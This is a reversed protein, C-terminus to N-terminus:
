RSVAKRISARLYDRATPNQRCEALFNTLAERIFWSVSGHQPFMRNFEDSDARSVRGTFEVSDPSSREGM